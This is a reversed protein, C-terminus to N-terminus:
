RAEVYKDKDRWGIFASEIFDLRTGAETNPKIDARSEVKCFRRLFEAADKEELSVTRNTQLLFGRFVPDACLIGARQAYRNHPSVRPAAGERTALPSKEEAAPLEHEDIQFMAVYFRDGIEIDRMDKPIGHPHVALGINIGGDARKSYRTLKAEVSIANDKAIARQIEEASM